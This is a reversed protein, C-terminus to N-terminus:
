QSFPSVENMAAWQPFPNVRARVSDAILDPVRKCRSVLKTLLGDLLAEDGELWEPPIQARATDLVEVPFHIVRDLWPQFDNLSRVHRYVAPRFYLGQLPSDFFRWLPGGFAHGQDIMSASFGYPGASTSCRPIGPRSFIAQRADANGTWKDLVLAGLFENRNAVTELLVDPVFDYIRAQSSTGPYRSGFHQGPEIALHSLHLQIRIDPYRALFEPSVNVIAIKPTSIHLYDLLSSALWENVLIRPHQPNNQFKVVYCHGDDCELLHAQAGGRMKRVLRVAQAKM